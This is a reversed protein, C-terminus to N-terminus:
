KDKKKEKASKIFDEDIKKLYYKNRLYWYYTRLHFLNNWCPKGHFPSYGGSNKFGQYHNRSIAEKVHLSMDKTIRGNIKLKIRKLLKTKYRTFKIDKIDDFVYKKKDGGIHESIRTKEM